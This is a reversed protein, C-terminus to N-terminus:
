HLTRERDWGFVEDSGAMIDDASEKEEQEKQPEETQSVQTASPDPILHIKIIYGRQLDYVQFPDSNIGFYTKLAKSLIQKRKKMNNIDTTTLDRNNHWDMSGGHTALTWLLQWQVDPPGARKRGNAFGMHAHNSEFQEWPVQILVDQGNLFKITIQEWQMGAPFSHRVFQKKKSTETYAQGAFKLTRKKMTDRYDEAEESSYRLKIKTNKEYETHFDKFINPNLVELLPKKEEQYLGWLEYRLKEVDVTNPEFVPAFDQLPISIPRALGMGAATGKINILFELLPFIVRKEDPYRWQPM